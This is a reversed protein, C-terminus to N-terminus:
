IFNCPDYGNNDIRHVTNAYSTQCTIWQKSCDLVNCNIKGFLVTNQTCNQSKSQFISFNLSQILYM